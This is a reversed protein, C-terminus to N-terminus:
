RNKRYKDPTITYTKKFNQIFHSVNSYGVKEAVEKISLDTEDLLVKAKAMRYEFIYNTISKNERRKFVQEMSKISMKVEEAITDRCFGDDCYHEHILTLMQEYKEKNYEESNYKSLNVMNEFLTGMREVIGDWNCDSNIYEIIENAIGEIVKQKQESMVASRTQIKRVLAMALGKADYASLSMLEEGLLLDRAEMANGLMVAREIKDLLADKDIEDRDDYDSVDIVKDMGVFFSKDQAAILKAYMAPVASFDISSRHKIVMMKMHLVEEIVAKTKLIAAYVNNGDEANCLAAIDEPGTKLVEVNTDELLELLVNRVAYNIARKESASDKVNHNELDRIYIRFVICSKATDLKTVIKSNRAGEGKVYAVLEAINSKEKIENKASEAYWYYQGFKTLMWTMASTFCFIVLIIMILSGTIASAVTPTAKNLFDSVNTISYFYRNSSKIRVFVHKGSFWINEKSVPREKICELLALDTKDDYNSDKIVLRGENDIVIYARKESKNYIDFYSTYYNIVVADERKTYPYIIFTYVPVGNEESLFGNSNNKYESMISKMKDVFIAKNSADSDVKANEVSHWVDPYSSYLHISKIYYDSKAYFNLRDNFKDVVESDHFNHLTFAAEIDPDQYIQTGLKRAAVARNAVEESFTDLESKANNIHLNLANNIAIYSLVLNIGIVVASLIVMVITLYKKMIRINLDNM